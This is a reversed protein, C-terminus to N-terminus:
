RRDVPCQIQKVLVVVPVIITESFIVGIVANKVSIDYVLHPDKDADSLGICDGYSTRATCASLLLLSLILALKKM